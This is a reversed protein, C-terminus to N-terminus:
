RGEVHTQHYVALFRRESVSTYPLRDVQGQVPLRDVTDYQIVGSSLGHYEHRPHGMGFVFGRFPRAQTWLISGATFLVQCFGLPQHSLSAEGVPELSVEVGPLDREIYRDTLHDFLLELLGKTDGAVERSVLAGSAVLHVASGPGRVGFTVPAQSTLTLSHDNQVSVGDQTAYVPRASGPVIGIPGVIPDLLQELYLLDLLVQVLAPFIQPFDGVDDPLTVVM